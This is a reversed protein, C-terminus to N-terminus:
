GVPGDGDPFADFVRDCDGICLYKTDLKLLSHKGCGPCLFKVSANPLQNTQKLEISLRRLENAILPRSLRNQEREWIIDSARDSILAIQGLHDASTAAQIMEDTVLFADAFRDAQREVSVVPSGLRRQAQRERGLEDINKHLVAHGLEHALTFRARRDLAEARRWTTQSLRIRVHSSTILTSAEYGDIELDPVIKQVFHKIGFRTFISARQYLALMNPM